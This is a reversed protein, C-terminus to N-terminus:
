WMLIRLTAGVGRESFHKSNIFINKLKVLKGAPCLTEEKVTFDMTLTQASSAERCM